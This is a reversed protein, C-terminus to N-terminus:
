KHWGGEVQGIFYYEEQGSFFCERTSTKTLCLKKATRWAHDELCRWAWGWLHQLEPEQSLWTVLPDKSHVRLLVHLIPYAPIERSPFAPSKRHYIRCMSRSDLAFHGKSTFWDPRPKVDSENKLLLEQKMHAAGTYASFHRHLRVTHLEHTASPPIFSSAVPTAGMSRGMRVHVYATDYLSGLSRGFM